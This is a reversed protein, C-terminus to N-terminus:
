DSPEPTMCAQTGYAEAYSRGWCRKFAQLVHLNPPWKFDDAPRGDAYVMPAERPGIGKLREIAKALGERDGELFAITGDMYHNWGFDADEDMPKYTLRLLAIAQATQGAYARMQGEHTYLISTHDRKEHRWARILEAAEAYCGREFLARWGGDPLTQDFARRDLELMVGLDYTCDPAPTPAPDAPQAAALLLALM